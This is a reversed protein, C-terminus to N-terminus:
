HSSRCSSFPPVVEVDLFVISWTKGSCKWVPFFPQRHAFLAFCGGLQRISSSCFFLSASSWARRRRAGTVTVPLTALMATSPLCRGHVQNSIVRNGHHDVCRSWRRRRSRILRISCVGGQLNWSVQLLSRDVMIYTASCTVVQVSCNLQQVSSTSPATSRLLQILLQILLQVSCNSPHVSCNLLGSRHDPKKCLSLMM